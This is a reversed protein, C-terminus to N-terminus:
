HPKPSTKKAPTKKAPARKASRKTTTTVPAELAPANEPAETARPETLALERARQAAARVMSGLAEPVSSAASWGPPAGLQRLMAGSLPPAEFSLQLSPLARPADYDAPAIGDLSVTPIAESPTESETAGARAARLAELVQAKTRGRLEFLLFPDRDFAEGLVYHTAAVHKCPNASDPCDCSTRLEAAKAPFLSAKASAFADDIEQPMTGALLEATFAAKAAMAEIAAAWVADSLVPLAITVRYPQPASGTVRAQVRGPKVVLDHTRGGRAYTRGRALRSEYSRSMRELAEIWRQGWWTSGAKKMKIGRAPPPKKPAARPYWDWDSM